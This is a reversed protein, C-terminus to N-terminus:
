LAFAINSIFKSVYSAMLRYGADNPHVGDGVSFYKSNTEVALGSIAYLDLVPIAYKVGVDLIAQRADRIGLARASTRSEGLQVPTILFFKAEPHNALVWQIGVNLAGYVTATTTDDITGINSTNTGGTLTILDASTFVDATMLDVIQTMTYGAVGKNITITGHYGSTYGVYGAGYNGGAGTISDGYARWAKDIFPKSAAGASGTPGAPGAPGVPGAPGQVGNLGAPGAPGIPGVPGAPGVSGSGTGGGKKSFM